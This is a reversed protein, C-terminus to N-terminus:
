SITILSPVYVYSLFECLVEDVKIKKCVDGRAIYIWAQKPKENLCCMVFSKGYINNDVFYSSSMNHCVLPFNPISVTM